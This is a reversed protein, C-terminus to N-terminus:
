GKVGLCKLDKFSCNECTFEMYKVNGSITMGSHKLDDGCKPCKRDSM